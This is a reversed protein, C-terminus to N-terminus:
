LWVPQGKARASQRIVLDASIEDAAELVAERPDTQKSIPAIEVGSERRRALCATLESEAQASIRSALDATPFQVGDPYGVYPLQLAHMLFVKARVQAALELAVDIRRQSM